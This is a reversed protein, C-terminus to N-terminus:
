GATQSRYLKVFEALKAPEVDSVAWYSFGAGQWRVMHYGGADLAVADAAAPGGAQSPLSVLSILHENHRYVLSPAVRGDIVDVRGGVLTFGQAALDVAPPSVGLKADLWPKVTHQDSSVVDVPSAALLSRMHGDAISAELTAGPLPQGGVLAYTGGSAIMATLIISAAINRWERGPWGQRPAPAAAAIPRLKPSALGAIRARFDDSVAPRELGQVAAQLAKLRDHEAALQPEAALRRELAMTAAADLEGDVLANLLLADDENLSIKDEDMM